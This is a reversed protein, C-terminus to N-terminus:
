LALGVKLRHRSLQVRDNRVPIGQTQDASAEPPVAFFLGDAPQSLCFDLVTPDSHSGEDSVADLRIENEGPGQRAVAHHHRSRVQGRGFLPVGKGGRRFELDDSENPEQFPKGLEGIIALGVVRLPSLWALVWIEFANDRVGDREIQVVGELQGRFPGGFLLLAPQDDFDVVPPQCHKTNETEQGRLRNGPGDWHQATDDFRVGAFDHSGQLGEREHRLFFKRINFDDLPQAFVIGAYHLAGTARIFLIELM